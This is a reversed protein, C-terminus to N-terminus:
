KEELLIPEAKNVTMGLDKTKLRKLESDLTKSVETYTPSFKVTLKNKQIQRQLGCVM